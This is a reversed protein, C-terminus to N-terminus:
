PLLAAKAGKTLRRRDDIGNIGGNIARTVGELDDRDAIANIKRQQWYDCAILVATEPEAALEPDNELDIGLRAGTIRYNTRGTLQVIGRGCYRAGDGPETNGLKAAVKPRSGDKDYMRFFYSPGGLEKLYLFGGSEHAMQGTWHALRLPTTLGFEEFHAAAGRGLAKGRDDLRRGAVHAFLAAYTRPGIQGDAPGPDQGLAKLRTQLARVNM